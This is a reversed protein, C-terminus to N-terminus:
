STGTPFEEEEMADFIEGMIQVIEDDKEPDAWFTYIWGVDVSM